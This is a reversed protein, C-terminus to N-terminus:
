LGRVTVKVTRSGGAAFPFTTEEPVRVRLPYVVRGTTGGFRYTFHWKGRPGTRLLQFTRWKRRYRAQLEILKGDAPVRGLVRGSLRIPEGNLVFRPSIRLRARAPVLLKFKRAAPRILRSGRYSFRLIRSFRARARYRFRGGKDTRVLGVAVPRAGLRSARATVTVLSNELPQGDQTRLRGRIVFRRGFRVKRASTFRVVRRRKGKVRKITRKVFGATFRTVVRVPLTRRAAIPATSAENGAVDFVRARVAYTGRRFRDDDLYAALGEGRVETRLENWTSTGQRRVEVTGGALGSVEDRARVAILLPDASDQPVIDVSPPDPDHRLHLPLSGANADQNGAADERWVSLTWDGPSPVKVSDLESQSAVREAPQCRGDKCLRYWAAVVPAFRTEDGNSWVTRFANARRWGEGGDLGVDVRGPAHNDVKVVGSRTTPNSAADFARVFYTHEGDPVASTSVALSSGGNGATCPASQTYDCPFGASATDGGLAIDASRIGTGDSHAFTATQRGSVWRGSALGGGTIGVDPPTPDNVVVTASRTRFAAGVSCPQRGCQTNQLLQTTGPPIAANFNNLELETSGCNQNAGDGLVIRDLGPGFARIQNSVYCANRIYSFTITLGGITTGPPAFFHLRSYAGNNQTGALRTVMGEGGGFTSFPCQKYVNVSGSQPVWSASQSTAGCAGVAYSGASAPAAICLSVLAAIVFTGIGRGSM